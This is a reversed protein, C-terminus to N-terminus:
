CEPQRWAASDWARLRGDRVGNGVEHGAFADEKWQLVGRQAVVHVRQSVEDAFDSASLDTLEWLKHLTREDPLLTPPVTM